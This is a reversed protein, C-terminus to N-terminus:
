RREIDRRLEDEIERKMEPKLTEVLQDLADELGRGDIRANV